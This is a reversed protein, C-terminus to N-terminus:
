FINLAHSFTSSRRWLQAQIRSLSNSYDRDWAKMDHLGNRSQTDNGLFVLHNTLILSFQDGICRELSQCRAGGTNPANILAAEQISNKKFDDWTSRSRARPCFAGLVPDRWLATQKGSVDLIMIEACRYIQRFCASISVLRPLLLLLLFSKVSMYLCGERWLHLFLIADLWTVIYVLRICLSLDFKAQGEESCTTESSTQLKYVLM